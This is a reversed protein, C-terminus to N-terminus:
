PGRPAGGAGGTKGGRPPPQEGRGEGDSADAGPGERPGRDRGDRPGGDRGAGRSRGGGAQQDLNSTGEFPRLRRLRERAADALKTRDGGTSWSPRLLYSTESRAARSNGGGAGNVEVTLTASFLDSVQTPAIEASWQAKRGDSLDIDGGVKADELGATELLAARSRAFAEDEIDLQRMAQRALLVNTYAASLVVAALAFIALSVLVEVLTFGRRGM